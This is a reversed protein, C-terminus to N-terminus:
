YQKTYQLNISTGGVMTGVQSLLRFAKTLAIEVQTAAYGRADTTLEVYVRSNIYKGAGVSAGRGLSPDAAYVSLRDLKMAKQLRGLPDAGGGRLANLSAALQVAQLPSISTASGGFLLRALVQDQPLAPTSSFSIQPHNATGAIDVSATVGSVTTTAEIDLIPDPPNAGAMHIVGRTLSLKRGAFEFSGRVLDVDGVVAPDKADGGIHLATRWEAELGLGTVFIHSGGSVNVDLKWASPKSAATFADEPAATPAEVVAGAWRVGTLEVVDESSAQGIDYSAQDLTLAGVIRAGRDKDHAVELAGSVTAGANATNALRARNLKIKLDLPFGASQALDAFGSAALSGEGARATLSTLEFRSGTFHGDVAIHDIVAGLSTDAFRLSQGHLVGTLQPDDVKGSVDVGIAVPGSLTQGGVGGLGWLVESPGDYRLGGTVPADALRDYWPRNRDGAAPNLALQMRGIVGGGRRVLAHAQAEIPSLDALVSIDVPQSVIAAATRTFQSVQLQVHATPMGGSAPLEINAEGTALGGLDLDPDLVRSLALDFGQLDLRAKLGQAGQSGSLVLRGHPLVLVVPDLRYTAGILHVAAPAELRIPTKDVSGAGTIRILGPTLTAGATLTFPAAKTGSASIRVDGLGKRLALDLRAKAVSVGQRKVGNLNIVGTITPSEPRLIIDLNASGRAITVPPTTLLHADRASAVVAIGQDAGRASLTAAGSLGLGTLKLDGAFPGASTQKVLGSLSIEGLKAHEINLSMGGPAADLKAALVLPGQPSSAHAGVRWKAGGLSEAEVTLDSLSALGPAPAQLQARPATLAGTIALSLPGHDKAAGRLCLQIAGNATLAGQGSAIQLDPAALTVSQLSLAGDAGYALHADLNAPGGLIQRATPEDIRTAHAHVAGELAFRGAPDAALRANLAMDAVGLGKWYLGAAEAKLTGALNRAGPDLLLDANLRDTRGKVEGGFLRGGTFTLDGDLVVHTALSDLPEPLGTVTAATVKFALDLHQRPRQRVEGAAALGHVAIPGQSVEAAALSYAINPHDWSGDLTAELRLDRGELKQPLARPGAVVVQVKLGDLRSHDIDVGGRAVAQIGTTVARADVTAWGAKLRAALNFDVGPAALAAMAGASMVRAPYARGVASFLGDKASLAATLLPQGALTAKTAGSWSRWTGVGGLDFTVAGKLGLLHNIVGGDPGRLSASLALHNKDPEADVNIALRDGAAAGAVSLAEAHTVLRIRRKLLEAGGDLSVIRREGTLAPELVLRRVALRAIILHINPIRSPRTASPEPRLRPARAVDILPSTVSDIQINRQLLAQPRWALTVEPSTVFAGGPDRVSVDHFIMRGYISGDLRGVHLSIGGGLPLRDLGAVILARGVTTNLGVAAV